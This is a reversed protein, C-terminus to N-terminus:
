LHPRIKLIYQVATILALAMAFYLLVIGIIKVSYYFINENGGLILFGLAILQFTTKYKAWTSVLLLVSKSALSERLGSILLERALIIFTPCLILLYIDKDRFAIVFAVVLVLLKDSISDFIRGFNSSANFLRALYGDFFDTISAYSFIILFLLREHPDNFFLMMLFVPIVALRSITLLNPIQNRM